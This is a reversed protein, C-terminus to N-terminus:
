TTVPSPAATMTPTMSPAMSPTMSPAMSPTVTPMPNATFTPATTMTPRTNGNNTCAAFTMLLLAFLAACIMITKKRM